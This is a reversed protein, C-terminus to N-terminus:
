FMMLTLLILKCLRRPEMQLTSKSKAILFNLYKCATTIPQRLLRLRLLTIFLRQILMPRSLIMITSTCLLIGMQIRREGSGMLSYLKRRGMWSPGRFKAMTELLRSKSLPITQTKSTTISAQFSWKMTKRKMVKKQRKNSKNLKPLNLWRSMRM